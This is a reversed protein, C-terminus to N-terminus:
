RLRAAAAQEALVRSPFVDVQFVATQREAPGLQSLLQQRWNGIAVPSPSVVSALRNGFRAVVVFHPQNEIPDVYPLASVRRVMEEEIAAYDEGFHREFRALAEEETEGALPLQANALERWYEFFAKPRHKALFYTLAWAAAYGDSDLQRAAVTQRVFDGQGFPADPKQSLEVLAHLRLDNVLGVGKWRIGKAVDTPSFYEPIGESIWPSWRGLRPQVGINHLVQHVGEHAITSIATKIAIAPAVEALQSQEYMVVHNSIGDYYAVVGEPMKRFTQFDQETRFMVVVLPVEPETVPLGQKECYSVLKPFMSELIRSTATAFEESSDYLYVYRRTKKTRFGPFRTTQLQEILAEPSVPEFPRDTPTIRDQPVSVLRGSPLMVIRFDGSEFQLRGVAPVDDEGPVLVTVGDRRVLPATSSLILQEEGAGPQIMPSQAIAAPAMLLLVASCGIGCVRSM